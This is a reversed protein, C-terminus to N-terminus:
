IIYGIFTVLAGVGEIIGGVIVVVVGAAIVKPNTSKTMVFGAAIFVGGISSIFGGANIWAQNQHGSPDHYNVPDNDCYQYPKESLYTDRTTFLGVQPDYYRAGIHLLGADGDDRYGSQAGYGYEPKTGSSAVTNGFADATSSSTVAGSMNTMQRTSGQGDYLYSELGKSLLGNGYTYSATVTNGQKENLVIGGNADGARVFTTANGGVSREVRREQADYAFAKTTSGGGTIGSLEGKGNYALAFTAGNLTRTVQDGNANYTYSNNLGGTSSSVSLLADDTDYVFATTAAGVTQSLRNGDADLTYTTAFAAAGTRSEGTLRGAADYTYSVVSGDAETVSSKKGDARYTYAFSSLTTGNWTKNVLTALRGADDYTKTVKVGNAMATSLEEGGVGYTYHVNGPGDGVYYLQGRGTYAYSVTYTYTSSATDYGEVSMLRGKQGSLDYRYTVTNTGKTESTFRGADDFTRSTTGTSDVFQTLNNGADYTFAETMTGGTGGTYTAGVKRYLGDLAFTSERGLADTKGTPMGLTNYLFATTKGGPTTTSEM